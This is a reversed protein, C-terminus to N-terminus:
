PQVVLPVVSIPESVIEWMDGISVRGKGSVHVVETDGPTTITVAENFDAGPDDAYTLRVRFSDGIAIKDENLTALSDPNIIEVSLPSLIEKGLSYMVGANQGGTCEDPALTKYTCFARGRSHVNEYKSGDWCVAIQAELTYRDDPIAGDSMTGIDRGSCDGIGYEVWGQIAEDNDDAVAVSAVQTLAILGGIGAIRAMRLFLKAM